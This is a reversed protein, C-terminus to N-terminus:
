FWTVQTQKCVDKSNFINHPEVQISKNCSQNPDILIQKDFSYIKFNSPEEYKPSTNKPCEHSISKSQYSKFCLIYFLSGILLMILIIISAFLTFVILPTYQCRNGLNWNTCTCYLSLDNPDILCHGNNQCYSVPCQMICVEGSYSPNPSNDTYGPKCKCEFGTMHNAKQTCISNEGCYNLDQITCPNINFDISVISLNFYSSDLDPNYDSNENSLLINAPLKLIAKTMERTFDVKFNNSFLKEKIMILVEVLFTSTHPFNSINILQLHIINSSLSHSTNIIYRLSTEIDYKFKIYQPSNVNELQNLYKLEYYKFAILSGKLLKCERSEDQKFFPQICKCNNNVCRQNLNLQCNFDNLCFDNVKSENNVVKNM